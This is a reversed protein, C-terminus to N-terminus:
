SCKNIYGCECSVCGSEHKIGSQCEPCREESVWPGVTKELAKQVQAPVSMLSGGRRNAKELQEM